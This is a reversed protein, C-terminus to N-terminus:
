TMGDAMVSERTLTVATEGSGALLYGGDPKISDETLSAELANKVAMM